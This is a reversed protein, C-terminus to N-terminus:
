HLFAFGRSWTRLYRLSCILSRDGARACSARLSMNGTPFPLTPGCVRVGLIGMRSEMAVYTRVCLVKPAPLLRFRRYASGAVFQNSSLSRRDLDPTSSPQGRSGVLFTVKDTPCIPGRPLLGRGDGMSRRDGSQCTRPM